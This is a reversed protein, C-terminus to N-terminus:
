VREPPVPVDAMGIEDGQYITRRAGFRSYCCLPWGLRLRGWDVAGAVEPRTRSVDAKPCERFPDPHGVQARLPGKRASQLRSGSTWQCCAPVAM